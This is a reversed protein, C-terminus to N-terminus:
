SGDAVQYMYSSLESDAFVRIRSLCTCDDGVHVQDYDVTFACLLGAENVAEQAEECYDGFPYALAEYPGIVDKCANFDEVLEEVTLDYIKGGKGRGSYGATHMGYTHSQFPCYESAYNMAKWQADDDICILFSTAPVQYKELLPIGYELFGAEGDDFTLVVSKSPLSHTGAIYAKLEQYSPYYYGESTLWQLQEEFKTDELYNSNYEPAEEHYIYHYMLVSIGDTDVDMDDVVHVTRTATAKAGKSNTATYTITYDGVKNADVTGSAKVSGTISGEEKDTAHCGSEIYSEGKLVYTDKSGQLTMVINESIAAPTQAANNSAADNVTMTASGQADQTTEQSQSGAMIRSIGFGLGAILAVLVIAVIIAPAKSAKKAQYGSNRSYDRASGDQSYPRSPGQSTRPRATYGSAAGGAQSAQGPRAYQRQGSQSSAAQGSRTSRDAPSPLDARVHQGQRASRGDQDNM